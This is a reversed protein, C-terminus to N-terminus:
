ILGISATLQGEYAAKKEILANLKGRELEQEGQKVELDRELKEKHKRLQEDLQKKLTL